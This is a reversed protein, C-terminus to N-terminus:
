SQNSESNERIQDQVYDSLYKNYPLLTLSCGEQCMLDTLWEDWSLHILDIFEQPSGRQKFREVFVEKAKDTAMPIVLHFGIQEEYLASRVVKHTSVLIYDYKGMNEKIHQIYNEPFERNRVKKGEDNTSWSFDSSDSDLIKLDGCNKHLHTKGMGPFAAIIKTKIM